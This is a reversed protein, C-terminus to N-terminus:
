PWLVFGEATVQWGDPFAPSGDQGSSALLSVAALLAGNGPLYIPLISGMQSNHGVVTYQNKVEDRLLADIAVDARGLRSATMAMVPFDWGWATPWEWTDLADTLTARMIEPDIVPTPPVVGYAALLAPHDDRRLFPETAIATYRGEVVHPSAIRSQADTWQEDRDFGSLERWRQAIELGWWWYALEFTPDETTTVDYFEQAPMVPSLLHLEGDREELFAAMFTATEHAVEAFEQALSARETESSARWVLELLYLIHPQQWILFSGIPDPSEIGQPGVQKPWRAGPYGQGAATRRAEDLIDRYWGLSRRLLEPRGWSAFHAAHWFHMELHSKGSWSNTVLGTEQPPMSGASHVATLYQSLVVRRELETARPDTSGALDIAAGSQWFGAWADGSDAVVEDFSPLRQEARQPSFGAVLEFTAEAPAIDFEHAGAPTVLSGDTFALAVDYRTADLVRHISATAASSRYLASSHRDPKGWDSTQFFGDHAYPFRVSVSLQGTAFLESQIRFAVTSDRPAAVTTVRVTEGRFGFSTSLVGTWLDLTQETDELESPEVEMLTGDAQRFSFGIRGLDLRQPNANLWAGARNEESVQGRMAGELDHRDPYRVPGRRTQHDSMADELTFGDPNPMAHWGWTSMTATNVTTPGGRVALLPDHFRTFTQMGSIDATYAFDGNGVSLVHQPDPTSIRPNHRRVLELRNIGTM